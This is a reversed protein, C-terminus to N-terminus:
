WIRCERMRKIVDDATLRGEVDKGEPVTVGMMELLGQQGGYSYIGNCIVDFVRRGDKYVILQHHTDDDLREYTYGNQKLYQELKNLERLDVKSNM